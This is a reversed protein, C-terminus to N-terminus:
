RRRQNKNTAMRRHLDQIQEKSYREAMEEPPPAIVRMGHRDSDRIILPLGGYALATRALSRMALEHKEATSLKINARFARSLRDFHEFIIPMPDVFVRRVAATPNDHALAMLKHSFFTHATGQQIVVSIRDKQQLIPDNDILTQLRPGVSLMMLRERHEELGAEKQAYAVINDLTKNFSSARRGWLGYNMFHDQIENARPHVAAYDIPTVRIGSGLLTKTEARTFDNFKGGAHEREMTDRATKDGQSIRSLLEVQEPTWSTIEPIFIDATALHPKLGAFDASDEHGGYVITVDINDPLYPETALPAEAAIVESNRPEFSKSNLFSMIWIIVNISIFVLIASCIPRTRWAIM